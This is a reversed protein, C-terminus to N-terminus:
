REGYSDASRAGEARHIRGIRSTFRLPREHRHSGYSKGGYSVTYRYKLRHFAL